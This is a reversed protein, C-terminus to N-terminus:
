IFEVGMNNRAISPVEELYDFEVQDNDEKNEMEELFYGKKENYMLYNWVTFEGSTGKNFYVPEDDFCMYKPIVYRVKGRKDVPTNALKEVCNFVEKLSENNELEVISVFTSIRYMSRCSVEYIKARNWCVVLCGDLYSVEWGKFKEIAEIFEKYTM